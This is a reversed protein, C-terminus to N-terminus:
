QVLRFFGSSGELRNSVVNLGQMFVPPNTVLSWVVPSALSPTRGLNYGTLSSAWSLMLWNEKVQATLLAPPRSAELKVLEIGEALGRDRSYQKDVANNWHEHVGL